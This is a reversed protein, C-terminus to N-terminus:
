TRSISLFILSPPRLPALASAVTGIRALLDRPWFWARSGRAALVIIVSALLVLLLCAMGAMQHQPSCTSGCEEIASGATEDGMTHASAMTVVGGAMLHGQQDTTSLGTLFHMALIGLVIGPITVLAFVWRARHPATHAPKVAARM